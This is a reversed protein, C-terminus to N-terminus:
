ELAKGLALDTFDYQTAHPQPGQNGVWTFSGVISVGFQKLIKAMGWRDRDAVENPFLTAKRQAAESDGGRQPQYPQGALQTM